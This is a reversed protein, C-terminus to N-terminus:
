TTWLLLTLKQLLFFCVAPTNSSCFIALYSSKVVTAQNAQIKSPRFNKKKTKKFSSVYLFCISYTLNLILNEEREAGVFISSLRILRFFVACGWRPDFGRDFSLPWLTRSFNALGRTRDGAPSRQAKEDSGATLEETKTRASLSSFKILFSGSLLSNVINLLIAPGPLSKLESNRAQAFGASPFASSKRNLSSCSRHLVEILPGCALEGQLSSEM